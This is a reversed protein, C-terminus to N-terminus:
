IIFEDLECPIFIIFCASCGTNLDFLPEPFLPLASNGLLQIFVYPSNIAAAVHFLELNM